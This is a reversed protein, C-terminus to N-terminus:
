LAISKAHSVKIWLSYMKLSTAIAFSKFEEIFDLRVITNGPLSSEFIILLIEFNVFSFSIMVESVEFVLMTLFFNNHSARSLWIDSTVMFTHM